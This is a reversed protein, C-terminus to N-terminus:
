RRAAHHASLSAPTITPSPATDASSSPSAPSTMSRPTTTRATTSIILPAIQTRSVSAAAPQFTWIACARLTRSTAGSAHM